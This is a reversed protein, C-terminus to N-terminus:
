CSLIIAIHMKTVALSEFYFDRGRAWPPSTMGMGDLRTTQYLKSSNIVDCYNFAVCIHGNNGFLLEWPQLSVMKGNLEISGAGISDM